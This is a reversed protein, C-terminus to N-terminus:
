TRSTISMKSASVPYSRAAAIFCHRPRPSLRYLTEDLARRGGARRPSCTRERMVLGVYPRRFSRAREHARVCARVCVRARSRDRGSAAVSLWREEGKKRGHSRSSSLRISSGSSRLSVALVRQSSVAPTLPRAFSHQSASRRRGAERADGRRCRRRGRSFYVQGGGGVRGEGGRAQSAPSFLRGRPRVLWYHYNIILRVALGGSPCRPCASAHPPPHPLSFTSAAYISSPQTYRPSM